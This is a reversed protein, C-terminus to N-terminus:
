SGEYFWLVRSSHIQLTELNIDCLTPCRRPTCSPLTALRPRSRTAQDTQSPSTKSQIVASRERCFSFVLPQLHDLAMIIGAGSNWHFGSCRLQCIAFSCSAALGFSLRDLGATKNADCSHGDKWVMGPREYINHTEIIEGVLHKFDM